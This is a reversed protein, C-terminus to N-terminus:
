RELFIPVILKFISGEIIKISITMFDLGISM